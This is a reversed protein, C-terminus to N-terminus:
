NPALTLRSYGWRVIAPDTVNLDAVSGILESISAYGRGQFEM